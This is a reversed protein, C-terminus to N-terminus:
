RPQIGGIINIENLERDSMAAYPILGSEMARRTFDEIRELNEGAHGSGDDVYDVVLVTLGRLTLTELYRLREEVWQSDAPTTEIYFLDEVAWGSISQLLSGDDWELLREGNQLIIVFSDGAERHAYLSIERIFQLMRIAAEEEGLSDSWFEFEDVKDLYVGAFGQAIVRDLYSFVIDRWGDDWYRVAYNGPWEPNEPGLWSPPNSYWTSDWYFRYDEAEGISVYALPIMGSERIRGIEVSSFEGEQTGDRSYDMVVVDFGSQLISDVSIDQLYYTWDDIGELSTHTGPRSSCSVILAISLILRNRM